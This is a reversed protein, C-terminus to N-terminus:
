SRWWDDTAHDILSGKDNKRPRNPDDRIDRWLMALSIGTAIVALWKQGAQEVLRDTGAVSFTQAVALIILSLWRHFWGVDTEHFEVM